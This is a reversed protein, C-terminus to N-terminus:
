PVLIFQLATALAPRSCVPPLAIEGPRRSLAKESFYVRCEEYATDLCAIPSTSARPSEVVRVRTARWTTHAIVLSSFTLSQPYIVQHIRCIALYTRKIRVNQIQTSFTSPEFGPRGVCLGYQSLEGTAESHGQEELRYRGMLWEAARCVIRTTQVNVRRRIYLLLSTSDALTV